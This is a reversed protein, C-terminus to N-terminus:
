LTKKFAELGQQWFDIREQFTQEVERPNTLFSGPYVSMVEGNDLMVRLVISGFHPTDASGTTASYVNDHSNYVIGTITGLTARNYGMVWGRYGKKM